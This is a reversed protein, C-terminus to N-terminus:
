ISMPDDECVTARSVTARGMREKKKMLKKLRDEELKIQTLMKKYADSFDKAFNFFLSFMDKPQVIAPDLGYSKTLKSTREELSTFEASAYEIKGDFEQKYTIM